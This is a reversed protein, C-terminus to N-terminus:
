AAGCGFGKPIEGLAKTLFELGSGCLAAVLPLCARGHVMYWLKLCAAKRARLVREDETGAM